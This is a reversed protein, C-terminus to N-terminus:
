FHLSLGGGINHVQYLVQLDATGGFHFNTRNYKYEWFFALNETLFIRTGALANLGLSTDSGTGLEDGSMRGWFIGPGAGAYPQVRKGPYRAIWNVAWTAVRLHAGAFNSPGGPTFVIDQQKIHPSTYFFETEVGLWAPNSLFIGLKTGIIVSRTLRLDSLKATQVEAEELSRPITVGGYLAAYRGHPDAAAAQGTSLVVLGFILGWSALARANVM